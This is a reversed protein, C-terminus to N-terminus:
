RLLFKEVEFVLKLRSTSEVFNHDGWPIAVEKRLLFPYVSEEKRNESVIEDGLSRIVLLEVLRDVKEFNPKIKFNKLDSWFRQGITTAGGVTRPYVSLGNENFTGGKNIIREKLDNLFVGDNPSPPNIFILRNIKRLFKEPLSAVVWSGMSHAIVYVDQFRPNDFRQLVSVLDESMKSLSIDKESGESDGCGSFSFQVVSVYKKLSDALDLLLNYNGNKSAGLGHVFILLPIRGQKENLFFEYELKEGDENLIVDGKKM